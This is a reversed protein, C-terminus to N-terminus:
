KKAAKKRRAKIKSKVTDAAVDIVADAAKELVNLIDPMMGAVSQGDVYVGGEGHQAVLRAIHQEHSEGVRPQSPIRDGYKGITVSKENEESM